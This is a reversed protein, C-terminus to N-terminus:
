NNSAIGSFPLATTTRTAVASPSEGRTEYGDNTWDPSHRRRRKPLKVGLLVIPTCDCDDSGSESSDIDTDELFPISLTKQPTQQVFVPGTPTSPPVNEDGEEEGDDDDFLSSPGRKTPRPPSPPSLRLPMANWNMYTLVHPTTGNGVVHVIHRTPTMLVNNPSFPQRQIINDSM